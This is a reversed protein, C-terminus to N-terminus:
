QKMMNNEKKYFNKSNNKLKEINTKNAYVTIKEINSNIPIIKKDNINKIFERTIKIPNKCNGWAVINNDDTNFHEEVDCLKNITYEIKLNNINEEVYNIELDNYSNVFLGDQMEYETTQM